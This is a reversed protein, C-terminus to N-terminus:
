ELCALIPLRLQKGIVLIHKWHFQKVTFGANKNNPNKIWNDERKQGGVGEKKSFSLLLHTLLSM